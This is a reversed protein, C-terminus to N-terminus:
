KGGGIAVDRQEAIYHAAKARALSSEYLRKTAPPLKSALRAAFLREYYDDPFVEVTIRAHTAEAVRGKRWARSMTVSEGPAIRTDRKEHWATTFEIDRGIRLDDRAGAIIRGARDLLEIRLWVAPTPTTPLYHGAGINALKAIVAVSEGVRTVHADLRIGQRFAERDHIGRWTHERDPMHCTQCQIGRRMYPGELWEKYTNLLPKGNVATRPPLQHCSMCFDSREYLALEVLPYGPVAAARRPPGRRVWDRVHCAACTVGEDRLPDGVQQEALPTHCRNCAGDGAHDAERASLGWTSAAAHVSPQWERAQKAHCRACQRASLSAEAPALQPLPAGQPRIPVGFVRAEDPDNGPWAGTALREKRDEIISQEDLAASDRPKAGAGLALVHDALAWLDADTVPGQYGPMPTGALGTAISMVVARRREDVDDSERPRRLLQTTLDYPPENKAGDGRGRAGHCKDCGHQTWLTAGRAADVTRPPGILIPKAATAFAGPNFAKLVDILREIQKEDFVQVFGPM